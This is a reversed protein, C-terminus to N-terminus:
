KGYTQRVKEEYDPVREVLKDICDVLGDLYIGDQESKVSGDTNLLRVRFLDSGGDYIVDVDGQHIFGQVAFRLGHEIARPRNFGWSWVIPLYYAFISIIYEAAEM